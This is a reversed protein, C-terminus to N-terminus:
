LLTAPGSGAPDPTKDSGSGCETKSIIDSRWKTKYTIDSGSGTKSIQDSESGSRTKLIQDSGSESLVDMKFQVKRITNIWWLSLILLSTIM